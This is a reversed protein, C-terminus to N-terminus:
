CGASNSVEWEQQKNTYAKKTNQPRQSRVHHLAKHSYLDLWDQLKIQQLEPDPDPDEM